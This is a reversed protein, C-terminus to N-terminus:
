RNTHEMFMGIYLISKLDAASTKPYKCFTPCVLTNLRHLREKTNLRRLILFWVLLKAKSPVLGRWVKRAVMENESVAQSTPIANMISKVSFTGSNSHKWWYHGGQNGTIMAQNILYQLDFFSEEEWQFFQRQWDLQWTWSDGDWVRCDCIPKHHQLSISYLRPFLDMQRKNTAWLDEWFCTFEGNGVKKSIGDLAVSSM